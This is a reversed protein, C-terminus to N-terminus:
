GRQLFNCVSPRVPCADPCGYPMEYDSCFDCDRCFSLRKLDVRGGSNTEEIMWERVFVISKLIVCVLLMEQHQQLKIAPQRSAVKFM